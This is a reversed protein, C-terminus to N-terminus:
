RVFEEAHLVPSVIRNGKWLNCPACTVKVNEPDHKGGKSIPIVHDLHIEHEPVTRKCIWCMSDDRAIIASRIVPRGTQSGALRARRLRMADGFDQGRRRFLPSEPVPPMEDPLSAIFAQHKAEAEREKQAHAEVKEPTWYDRRRRRELGM